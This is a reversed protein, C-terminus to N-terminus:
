PQSWDFDAGNGQRPARMRSDGAPYKDHHYVCFLFPSLTQFPFGLPQHSLVAASAVSRLHSAMTVVLSSILVISCICCNRLIM